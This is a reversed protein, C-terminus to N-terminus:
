ARLLPIGAIGMAFLAVTVLCLFVGVGYVVRRDGSLAALPLAQAVHMGMFHAVRLDGGTTSWSFFGLGHADSIEGGVWHSHRSSMYGGTITALVMGLMLGLGAAEVILSHKRQKWVLFGVFFATCTLTLAGVGMLAYMVQAFVSTANFHSAEGRSARFIMYAMEFWAAISMAAVAIKVGSTNRQQVSLLTLAWSVTAFQVALSLFFKAPKDWVNVGNFLRQDILMLAACIFLGASFALTSRWLWRIGGRVDDLLKTIPWADTRNAAISM